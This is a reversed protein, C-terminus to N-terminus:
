NQVLQSLGYTRIETAAEECKRSSCMKKMSSKSSRAKGGQQRMAAYVTKTGEFTDFSCQNNFIANRTTSLTLAMKKVVM